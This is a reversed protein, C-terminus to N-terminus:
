AIISNLMPVLRGRTALPISPSRSVNTNNRQLINCTLLHPIFARYVVGVPNKNKWLGNLKIWRRVRIRQIFRVEKDSNTDNNKM